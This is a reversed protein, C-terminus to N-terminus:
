FMVSFVAIFIVTCLILMFWHLWAQEEAIKTAAPHLNLQNVAPGGALDSVAHAVSFIVSGAWAMVGTLAVASKNFISKMM